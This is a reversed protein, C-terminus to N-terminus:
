ARLAPLDSEQVKEVKSGTKDGPPCRIPKRRYSQPTNSTPPLGAGRGRSWPGAPGATRTRTPAHASNTEYAILVQGTPAPCGFGARGANSSPDTVRCASVFRFAAGGACAPRATRPRCVLPAGTLRKLVSGCGRCVPGLRFASAAGGACGRGPNSPWGRLPLSGPRIPASRGGHPLSALNSPRAGINRAERRSSRFRTGCYEDDRTSPRVPIKRSAHVRHLGPVRHTDDGV